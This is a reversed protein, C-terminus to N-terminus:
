YRMNNILMGPIKRENIKIQSHARLGVPNDDGYVANWASMNNNCTAMEQETKIYSFIIEITRDIMEQIPNREEELGSIIYRSYIDGVNSTTRSEYVGEMTNLIVNRTVLIPRGRPDVGRLLDTLRNQILTITDESFYLNYGGAIDAGYLTQEWGAYKMYNSDMVPMPATCTQTSMVSPYFGTEECKKYSM